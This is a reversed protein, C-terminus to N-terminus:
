EEEEEELSAEIEDLEANTSPNDLEAQLAAEIGALQRELSADITGLETIVICGGRAVTDDERVELLNARALVDLLKRQNRRLAEADAPHVRVNIERQQTADKLASRVIGVISDPRQKLEEGIVKEVCARVLRIYEPEIADRMKRVEYLARTTQETHQGLGEQYGDDYGKQRLEEAQQRAEEVIRNAEEEAQRLIHRAQANAGVIEKPIIPKPAAL